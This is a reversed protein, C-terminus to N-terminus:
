YVAVKSDNELSNIFEDIKMTEPKDDERAKRVTVTGEKQERDGVVIIYPVRAITHERIKFGVKENRLDYNVRLALKQMKKTIKKVYDNHREAIGTVVAQVPALWFPLWGETHELLIAMSREISGLIARHLMIPRQKSGDAAIYNADLREPLNFDAQITGLQWIRGLCDRFSYEVKPGYFAGEGHSYEWKVGEADLADALAKEAKDWVEDSGVRMEPRTALRYIVNDLGLDKYTQHLQQMFHSVEKQVQEETCFIHGDDQVMARVRMLGHLTGSPENRHCCGFESYRLPLDRYSKIGQNFVQVHSPCSMPKLISERDEDPIIFMGSDFKAKHGSQELLESSVVTPTNIEQYDAKRNLDRLYQRLVRNITWGNPHWFVMGPTDSQIHFLDMKQALERHDRKKAEELRHLYDKLDKKNAWATGYVRQLMENNSNGRWYAGALKTLKFAQLFRTNPVHPGRCLDIFGDQEYVSLAESEPLDKIIEVKYHEGLAEFMEIAKARSLELRKVTLERKAIEGMRAEIKELDDPTFPRELSFDYYFGDEIVPGITVQALPFLEKVAHALLHATSHRIVELGDADKATLITLEADETMPTSLDLIRDGVKGAIAAKALGAGISAAVQAITTAGDFVKQSGDPLTMTPM